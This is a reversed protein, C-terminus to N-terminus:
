AAWRQKIKTELVLMDDNFRNLESVLNAIFAEDRYVRKVFLPLSPWYSVFDCWERETVLLQGQIQPIHDEPVADALLVELHLHQLKTKVELTGTDGILSDPSAGIPGNCVTDNRAFGVLVPDVDSVFAYQQRAEAEMVRGREMHGNSFSEIPEGTMREGIMRLMYTRRVKSPANGKGKSLVTEFESATPIGMRARFWEESGQECTIYSVTM